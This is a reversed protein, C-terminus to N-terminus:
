RTGINEEIVEAKPVHNFFSLDSGISFPVMLRLFVLAWAIYFVKRPVAKKFLLRLIVLVAMIPVAGISLNLVKIFLDAIM